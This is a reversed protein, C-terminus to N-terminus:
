ATLADKYYLKLFQEKTKILCQPFLPLTSMFIFGEAAKLIISSFYIYVHLIYLSGQLHEKVISSLIVEPHAAGRPQGQLTRTNASYTGWGSCGQGSGENSWVNPACRDIPSVMLGKAISSAVFTTPSLCSSKPDLSLLVRTDVSDDQVTM